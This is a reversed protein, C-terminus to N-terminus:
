FAQPPMGQGDIFIEQHQHESAHPRNSMELLRHDVDVGFALEAAGRVRIDAFLSHGHAGADGHLVSIVDGAVM